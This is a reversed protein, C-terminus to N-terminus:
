GNIIFSFDGTYKWEGPYIRDLIELVMTEPKNPKCHYAKQIKKIYEDNLWLAKSKRRKKELVHPQNVAAMMNKRYQETMPIGKNWAKMGKHAKSQRERYEPSAWLATVTAKIKSRIEKKHSNERIKNLMIERKAPDKWQDIAKIRLRDRIEPNSFQEIARKRNAENQEPTRKKGRNGAVTKAIHEAARKRGKMAKSIKMRRNLEKDAIQM